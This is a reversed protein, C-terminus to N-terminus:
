FRSNNLGSQVFMTEADLGVFAGLGYSPLERQAVFGNQSTVGPYLRPDVQTAEAGMFVEPSGRAYVQPMNDM